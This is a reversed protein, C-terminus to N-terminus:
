DKTKFLKGDPGYKSSDISQENKAEEEVPKMEKDPSANSDHMQEDNDDNNSKANEETQENSSKAKAEKSVGRKVFDMFKEFNARDIHDVKIQLKDSGMDDIVSPCEEQMMKVLETMQEITLKRVYDTFKIREDFSVEAEQDESEEDDSRDDERTRKKNQRVKQIMRKSTRECDEAMRYIESDVINYSKCNDWILQIDGFFSEYTEYERNKLKMRISSIDMRNKVIKPYDQLGLAKWDVPELFPAANPEKELQGLLAAMKAYDEKKLPGKAM